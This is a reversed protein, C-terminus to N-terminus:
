RKEPVPSLVFSSLPLEPISENGQTMMQSIAGEHDKIVEAFENLADRHANLADQIKNPGGEISHNDETVYRDFTDSLDFLLRKMRQQHGTM